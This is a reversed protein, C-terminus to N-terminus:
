MLCMYVISLPILFPLAVSFWYGVRFTRRRYAMPNTPCILQESLPGLLYCVNAVAMAALYALGQLLITFLTVEFGNLRDLCMEGIAAYAVFALVGAVVLGRQLPSTAREM